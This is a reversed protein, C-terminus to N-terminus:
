KFFEKILKEPEKTIKIHWDKPFCRSYSPWAYRMDM